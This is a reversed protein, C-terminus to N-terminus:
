NGKAISRGNAIIASTENTKEGKMYLLCHTTTIRRVLESRSIGQERAVRDYLKLIEEPITMTTKKMKSM